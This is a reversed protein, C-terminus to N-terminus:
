FILKAPPLLEFFVSRLSASIKYPTETSHTILLLCRNIHESRLTPKLPLNLFEGSDTLGPLKYDMKKYVTGGTVTRDKALAPTAPHFDSPQSCVSSSRM